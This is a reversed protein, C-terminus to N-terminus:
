SPRSDTKAAELPTGCKPCMGPGTQHIKPNLPCVHERRALAAAEEAAAAAAEAEIRQVRGCLYGEPDGKFKKLCAKSCFRYIRDEYTFRRKATAPEVTTGCVPDIASAEIAHSESGRRDDVKKSGWYPDFGTLRLGLVAAFVIWYPWLSDVTLSVFGAGFLLVGLIVGAYNKIRLNSWTFWVGGAMSLWAIIM